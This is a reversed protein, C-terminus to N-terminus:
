PRLHAACARVLEGVVAQTVGTVEAFRASKEGTGEDVTSCNPCVIRPGAVSPPRAKQERKIAGARLEHIPRLTANPRDNPVVHSYVGHRTPLSFM